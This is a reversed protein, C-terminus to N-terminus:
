YNVKTNISDPKVKCDVTVASGDGKKATGCTGTITINASDTVTLSFQTGIPSSKAATLDNLTLGTFKSGGGGMSVPKLYYQHALGAMEMLESVVMDVNAKEAHKNFMGIGVVISVGVIIVALVLLLLQQQGM